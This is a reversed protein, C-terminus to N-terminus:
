PRAGTPFPWPTSALSLPADGGAAAPNEAPAAPENGTAPSAPAPSAKAKAKAKKPAAPKKETAPAAKSAGKGKAHAAFNPSSPMKAASTDVGFHAALATLLFPQNGPKFNHRTVFRASYSIWDFIFAFVHNLPWTDLTELLKDREVDEDYEAPLEIGWRALLAEDDFGMSEDIERRLFAEAFIRVLPEYDLEAEDAEKFAAFISSFAEERRAKEASAEAERQENEAQQRARDALRDATDAGSPAVGGNGPASPEAPQWGAKKLAAALAKPEAVELLQRNTGEGYEIVAAMPTKDGLIDRYSRNEADDEVPDDINLFRDEDLSYPGHPMVKKAEAGRLVPIKKKETLAILQDHRALRKEEFCKPDTCVDADEIDGFLDRDNGSRKPCTSCAGAAPLLQADDLPFTAQALSLTFHNRLWRQAERVSMPQGNWGSTIEKIARRQEHDGQIRAVLLATSADIRGEYFAERAALGLALLKLRAYVYSRSKGIKAAIGEAQYGHRKMLREYGEAEELPHVDRRQLNEIIQIELVQKDDLERWFAPIEELGALRAARWRCEGVVIEYLAVSRRDPNPRVTIPQLVGHSKITEALDALYAKDFHKRPNTPSAVIQALPLAAVAVSQEPANM